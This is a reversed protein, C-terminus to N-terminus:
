HYDVQLLGLDHYGSNFCRSKTGGGGGVGGGLGWCGWFVCWVCSTYSSQLNFWLRFIAWMYPRFMYNYEEQVELHFITTNSQVHLVCYEKNNSDLRNRIWLWKRHRTRIDTRGNPKYKIVTGQLRYNQMKLQDKRRRNWKLNFLSTIKRQTKVSLKVWNPVGVLVNQLIVNSNGQFECDSNKNRMKSGFLLTSPWYILFILIGKNAWKRNSDETVHRRATHCTHTWM